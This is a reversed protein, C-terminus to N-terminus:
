GVVAQATSSVFQTHVYGSKTSYFQVTLPPTFTVMADIEFEGRAFFM